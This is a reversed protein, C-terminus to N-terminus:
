SESEKDNIKNHINKLTKMFNICSIKDSEYTFDNEELRKECNYIECNLLIDIAGLEYSNFNMTREEM